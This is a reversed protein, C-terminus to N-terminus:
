RLDEPLIERAFMEDWTEPRQVLVAEGGERILVTAPRQYRNYNSAMSANYAGTCLVQLLDGEGTDAPLLVDEFLRDTECHRGSITFPAVEHSSTERGIRTPVVTYRSGYLAPRPNDALGGDICLYTRQGKERSPVTKRVGVRYLTLGSEAILSRGPEQVILPDLGSGELAREVAEVIMRCYSEVDMPRDEDLYRVGLGGGVNIVRCAFGHKAKMQVAFLAILEGGSIQAEPDLLQSGVHCHVGVVKLGLELCRLLAREASGDAINFGFKTDAQGTSIKAHTKPDVGPALRLVLDTQADRAGVRALAEIEGFNDVVVQNIGVEVAFRLERESKNNGHLHCRAAPVGALLAARLEGESAVDILCGEQAAIALVALTSNAKSAFTLESKPRAARFAAQYRRIRSRFHSEDVVYLPTGFREAFSRAQEDTLRFRPDSASDFAM